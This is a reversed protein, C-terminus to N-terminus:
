ATNPTTPMSLVPSPENNSIIRVHRRTSSVIGYGTVMPLHPFAMDFRAHSGSRLPVAHEEEMDQIGAFSDLYRLRLSGLSLCVENIRENEMAAKTQEDMTEDEDIEIVAPNSPGAEANNPRSMEVPRQKVSSESTDLVTSRLSM